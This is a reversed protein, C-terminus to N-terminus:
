KTNIINKHFDFEYLEIKHNQKSRYVNIIKMKEFIDDYIDRNNKYNMCLSFCMRKILTHKKM